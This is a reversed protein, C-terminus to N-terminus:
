EGTEADEKSAAERDLIEEWARMLLLQLVPLDDRGFSTTTKFGEGDHYTKQASVKYFPASGASKKSSNEFISVSVGKLRWAKIPKTAASKEMTIPPFVSISTWVLSVAGTSHGSLRRLQKGAPPTTFPNFTNDNLSHLESGAAQNCPQGSPHGAPTWRRGGVSRSLRKSLHNGPWLKPHLPSEDCPEECGKGEQRATGQWDSVSRPCPRERQDSLWSPLPQRGQVGAFSRLVPQENRAGSVRLTTARLITTM